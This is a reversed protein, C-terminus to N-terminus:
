ADLPNEIRQLFYASLLVSFWTCVSHAADRKEPLCRAPDTATWYEVVSEVQGASVFAYAVKQM